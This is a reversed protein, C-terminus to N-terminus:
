AAAFPKVQSYQCWPAYLVVLTDADREGNALKKLENHDLSQVPGTGWLDKHAEEGGQEAASTM